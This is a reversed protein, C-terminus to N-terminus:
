SNPPAADAADDPHGLGYTYYKDIEGYGYGLHHSVVGNLLLGKSAPIRALLELTRRLEGREIVGPRAILLVLDAFRAIASTDPVFAPPSDILIYDFETAWFALMTELQDTMLLATPDVSRAGSSLLTVRHTADRHMFERAQGPSSDRTVLEVYGPARAVGWVRHQIPKRLDLDVLLVRVGTRALAVALNASVSSKGEAPVSSTIQIIRGRGPPAPALSISVALARSAEATANPGRLWTTSLISVEAPAPVLAPLMGYVPWQVESTIAEVSGLKRQLMRAVYVAALALFLGAVFGIALMQGRKPDTKRHPFNAADVVRKDTTTSAKLIEAENYKELLFSYLRESVEVARMLRALQLQKDPFKELSEVTIKLQRELEQGRSALNRRASRMLRTVEQQQLKLQAGLEVVQPHAATLSAKLVEYRIEDQTLAAVSEALVPDDFFNATLHAKGRDIRGKMGGLVQDMLKEQMSAKLREAELEAVNQVTAQAQTDLQVAREEESFLRLADEQEALRETAEALQTSIFDVARSASSIQWELSQEVYREMLRVVVAQAIARDTTTFEVRVLNTPNRGGVRTVALSGGLGDILSGDSRLVLEVSSGVEVPLRAFALKLVPTELRAGVELDHVGGTGDEGIEVKLTEEDVATVRVQVNATHQPAVEAITVAARAQTLASSVPSRGGVSISLDLTLGSPQQPDVINLRLDKFVALLFERRRMLEIETDVDVDAGGGALELLPNAAMSGGSTVQVVGTATYTPITLFAVVAVPVLGLMFAGAALRWRRGLEGAWVWIIKQLSPGEPASAVAGEDLGWSAQSTPDEGGRPEQPGRGLTRRPWGRTSEGESM